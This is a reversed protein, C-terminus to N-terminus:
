PKSAAFWHFATKGRGCELVALMRQYERADHTRRLAESLRRQEEEGMKWHDMAM